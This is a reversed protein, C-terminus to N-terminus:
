KREMLRYVVVRAQRLCRGSEANRFGAALCEVVTNAKVTEDTEIVRIIKHEKPLYETGPEPRFAMMGYQDELLDAVAYVNNELLAKLKKMDLGVDDPNFHGNTDTLREYIGVIDMAYRRAIDEVMGKRHSQLEDHLERIIKDRYEIGALAQGTTVVQEEIRKLAEAAEQCGNDRIATFQTEATEGEAVNGAINEKGANDDSTECASEDQPLVRADEFKSLLIEMQQKMVKFENKLEVIEAQLVALNDDNGFISM